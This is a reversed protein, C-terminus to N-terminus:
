PQLSSYDADIFAKATFRTPRAAYVIPNAPKLQPGDSGKRIPVDRDLCGAPPPGPETPFHGPYLELFLQFLRQQKFFYNHFM